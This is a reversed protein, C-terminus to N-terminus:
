LAGAVGLTPVEMQWPHPGLFFSFFFLIVYIVLASDSTLKLSLFHWHGDTDKTDTAEEEGSGGQPSVSLSGVLEHAAVTYCSNLWTNQACPRM